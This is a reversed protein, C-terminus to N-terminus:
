EPLGAARLEDSFHELVPWRRLIRYTPYIAVFQLALVRADAVRGLRM